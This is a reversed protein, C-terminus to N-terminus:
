KNVKYNMFDIRKLFIGVKLIFIKCVLNEGICIVIEFCYNM